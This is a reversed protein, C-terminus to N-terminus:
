RLLQNAREVGTLKRKGNNKEKEQNENFYEQARIMWNYATGITRTQNEFHNKCKELELPIDITFIHGEQCKKDVWKRLDLITVNKLIKPKGKSKKDNKDNKDNKYTTIQKNNTQQKNTTQKNAM